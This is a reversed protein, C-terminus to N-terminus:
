EWIGSEGGSVNGELWGYPVGSKGRLTWTADPNKVFTGTPSVDYLWEFTPSTEEDTPETMFLATVHCLKECGAFMYVYCGDELTEAPLKPASIISTCNYFMAQYCDIALTTAPLDPAKLLSECYSFMGAYCGAALNTSALIPAVKLSTCGNFMDSYCGEILVAAPLAPVYVLSQCDKFMANYCSQAITKAPLTPAKVLVDDSYFMYAYSGFGLVTAPLIVPGAVLNDNNEFMGYYGLDAVTSAPLELNRASVIDMNSFLHAFGFSPVSTKNMTKSLLSMINGAVDVKKDSDFHYYYSETFNWNKDLTGSMKGFYSNDGRFYVVDGENQLTIVEKDYIDWQKWDQNNIRYELAIQASNDLFKSETPYAISSYTWDLEVNVNDERAIISFYDKSSTANTSYITNRKVNVIGKSVTTVSADDSTYKITLNNYTGVPLAVYFTKGENNLVVGDGLLLTVDAAANNQDDLVAVNDVVTFTGSLAKTDDSIVIKTIKANGKLTFELVGCINKFYLATNESEAYMPVDEFSNEKYNYTDRLIPVGGSYINAPYYAVFKGAGNKSAQDGVASFTAFAGSQDATYEKGNISIMDGAVWNVKDGAVLTTKTIGEEITANFSSYDEEAAPAYPEQCSIAAV